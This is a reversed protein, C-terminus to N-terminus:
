IANIDVIFEDWTLGRRGMIYSGFWVGAPVKQDDQIKCLSFYRTCKKIWRKPDHGDFCPFEVKPNFQFQNGGNGPTNVRRHPEEGVREQTRLLALIQNMV